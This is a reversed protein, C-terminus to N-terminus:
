LNRRNETERNAINLVLSSKTVCSRRLIYVVYCCFEVVFQLICYVFLQITRKASSIRRNIKKAATFRPLKSCPAATLSYKEIPIDPFRIALHPGVDFPAYLQTFSGTSHCLEVVFRFILDDKAIFLADPTLCMFILSDM